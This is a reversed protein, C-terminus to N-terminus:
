TFPNYVSIYENYFFFNCHKRFETDYGNEYTYQDQDQSQSRIITAFLYIVLVCTTFTWFNLQFSYFVRARHKQKHLIKLFAHEEEDAVLPCSEESSFESSEHLASSMDVPSYLHSDTVSTNTYLVSVPRPSCNTPCLQLLTIAMVKLDCLPVTGSGAYTL